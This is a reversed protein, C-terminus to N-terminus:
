EFLAKIDVGLGKCIEDLYLYSPNVGGTELRQISQRDKNVKYALDQLSLGQSIRIERVREGLKNLKDKQASSIPMHDITPMVYFIFSLSNTTM